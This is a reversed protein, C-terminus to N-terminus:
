QPLLIASPHDPDHYIRQDARFLRSATGVNEDTGSNRAYM